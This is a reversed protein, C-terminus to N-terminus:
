HTPSTTFLTLTIIHAERLQVSNGGNSDAIAVSSKAIGGNRSKRFKFNTSKERFRTAESLVLKGSSFRNSVMPIPSRGRVKPSEAM